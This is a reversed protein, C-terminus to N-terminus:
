SKNFRSSPLLSSECCTSPAAEVLRRYRRSYRFPLRRSIEFFPVLVDFETTGVAAVVMSSVFDNNNEANNSCRDFSVLVGLARGDLRSCTQERISDLGDSINSRVNSSSSHAQNSSSSSSIAVAGSAM